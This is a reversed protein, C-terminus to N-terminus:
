GTMNYALFSLPETGGSISCTTLGAPHLVWGGAKSSPSTRQNTVPTTSEVPKINFCSHDSGTVSMLSTSPVINTGTKESWIPTYIIAFSIFSTTLLIAGSPLSTSDLMSSLYVPS